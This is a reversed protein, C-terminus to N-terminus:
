TKSNSQDKFAVYACIATGFLGALVAILKYIENNAIDGPASFNPAGSMLISLMILLFGAANNAVNRQKPKFFVFVALSFIIIPAILGIMINGIIEGNM